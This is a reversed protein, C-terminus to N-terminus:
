YSVEHYKNRYKNISLSVEQRLISYAHLILTTLSKGETSFIQWDYTKFFAMHRFTRRLAPKDGPMPFALCHEDFAEQQEKTLYWPASAGPVSGDIDADGMAQLEADTLYKNKKKKLKITEM